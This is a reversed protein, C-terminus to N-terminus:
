IRERSFNRNDFMYKCECATIHIPEPLKYIGWLDKLVLLKKEPSQMYM